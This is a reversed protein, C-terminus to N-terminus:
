LLAADAASVRDSRHCCAGSPCRLFNGDGHHWSGTVGARV